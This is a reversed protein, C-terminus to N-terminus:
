VYYVGLKEEAKRELQLRAIILSIIKQIQALFSNKPALTQRHLSVHWLMNSTKLAFVFIIKRMIVM